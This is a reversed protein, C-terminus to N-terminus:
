DLKMFELETFDFDPNPVDIRMEEVKGDTGIIFQVMGSPLMMNTGWNLQFTDYHWHRFTGRFLPTPEFQFALQDGILRVICEGYMEGSYTGAYAALDLSPKTDKIRDEEAKDRADADKKDGDTKFKHYDAAWDRCEDDSLFEELIRNTLASSLWNINNTLIVFGLNDEPVLCTKSIMGDYGGGHSVVKHGHINNLAWGLGYGNFTKSPFNSRSWGSIGQPTHMHWMEHTREESWYQTSDLTGHGLQLKIWESLENVSAVISGAPAINDWNVWDIAINTGDHDNHPAALNTTSKFDKISTVATEMGLPSFFKEKIYDDWSMGSVEAVIEGAALFMINQYGYDTRFDSVPELYKARKIVEKRSHGSGYWILDGSFTALGSRHCLLDRIAMNQTVYDDYMEFYPLHDVVKDDWTIKKEDVLIALAASTFAKSNSAIAFMTNENVPEGTRVDRIGYGKSLLVEGDKVIAVAMGPINWLERSDEIYNDIRKVIKSQSFAALPLAIVACFLILNKM